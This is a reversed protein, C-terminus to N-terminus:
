WTLGMRTEFRRPEDSPEAAADRAFVPVREPESAIPPVATVIPPVEAEPTVATPPVPAPPPASASAPTIGLAAELRALRQDTQEQRRLLRLIAESLADM